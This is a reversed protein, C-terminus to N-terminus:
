IYGKSDCADCECSNGKLDFGTWDCVDCRVYRKFKINIDYNNYVDKLTIDTHYNIDLSERFEDKKNFITSFIDNNSFWAEAPGFSDDAFNGFNGFFSFPNVQPNYNSGFKSQQDYQRRSSEEGLITNAENIEKIMTDDIGIKGDPHYEKAKKRFASKIQDSSSKKDIGLIKYYDKNLDM